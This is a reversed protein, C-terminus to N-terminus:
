EPSITLGISFSHKLRLLSLKMICYDLLVWSRSINVIQVPCHQTNWVIVEERTLSQLMWNELPQPSLKQLAWGSGPRYVPPITFYKTFCSIWRGNVTVKLLSHSYIITWTGTPQSGRNYLNRQHVCLKHSHLNLILVTEQKCLITNFVSKPCFGDGTYM